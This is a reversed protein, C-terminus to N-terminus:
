RPNTVVKTKYGTFYTPIAQNLLKTSYHPLRYHAMYVTPLFRDAQKKTVKV